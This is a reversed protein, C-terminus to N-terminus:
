PRRAAADPGGEGAADYPEAPGRRAGARAAVPGPVAAHALLTRQTRPTATPRVVSVCSAGPGYGGHVRASRGTACGDVPVRTVPPETVRGAGRRTAPRSPPLRKSTGGPSAADGCTVRGRPIEGPRGGMPTPLRRYRGTRGRSPGHDCRRPRSPLVLSSR